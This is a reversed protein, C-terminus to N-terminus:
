QLNLITKKLSNLTVSTPDLEIALNVAELSKKNNGQLQYMEILVKYTEINHKKQVISHANKQLAKVANDIAKTLTIRGQRIQNERTEEASLNFLAKSLSLRIYENKSDLKLAKELLEVSKPYKGVLNEFDGYFLLVELSDSNLELAKDLALRGEKYNEEKILLQGEIFYISGLEPAMEKAEQIMEFAEKVKGKYYEQEAAHSATIAVREEETFAGFKQYLGNAVELVRRRQEEERTKINVERVFIAWDNNKELDKFYTRTLPLLEYIEEMFNSQSTNVLSFDNIDQLLDETEEPPFGLIAAITEATEPKKLRSLVYLTKHHAENLEMKAEEFCFKHIDGTRQQMRTLVDGISKGRKVQGVVYRLALPISGTEKIIRELIQRDSFAARVGYEEATQRILKKAEPGSLGELRIPFGFGSLRRTTIVVKHGVPSLNEGPLENVFNLISKKDSITEFNDIIILCPESELILKVAEEKAQIDKDVLDAFGALLLLEDYLEDVVRFYNAIPEIGSATPPLKYTKASVWVIYTWPCIGEEQQKALKWAVDLALTSKGIGGIGEISVVYQRPHELRLILESIEVERGIFESYDPNPLNHTRKRKQPKHGLQRQIEEWAENWEQPANKLNVLIPIIEFAFASDRLIQWLDIHKPVGHDPHQIDNRIQNIEFLINIQDQTVPKSKYKRLQHIMENASNIPTIKNDRLFIEVSSILVKSFTGIAQRSSLIYKESEMNGANSIAAVSQAFAYKGELIIDKIKESNEEVM